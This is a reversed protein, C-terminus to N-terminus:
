KKSFDKHHTPKNKRKKVFFFCFLCVLFLPVIGYQIPVGSLFPLANEDTSVDKEPLTEECSVPLDAVPMADSTNQIAMINEDQIATRMMPSAQMDPVPMSEMPTSLPLFQLGVVMLVFVAALGVYQYIRTPFHLASPTREETKEKAIANKWRQTVEKPVEEQQYLTRLDLLAQCHTCHNAHELMAATVPADNSDLAKCFTECEM